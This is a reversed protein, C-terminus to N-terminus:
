SLNYKIFLLNIDNSLQYAVLVTLLVDVFHIIIDVFYLINIIRFPYQDFKKRTHQKNFVIHLNM